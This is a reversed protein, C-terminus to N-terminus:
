DGRRLKPLGAEVVKAWGRAKGTVFALRWTARRRAARSALPDSGLRIAESRAARLEDMLAAAQSILAAPRNPATVGPESPSRSSIHLLTM